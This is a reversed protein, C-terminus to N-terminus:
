LTEWGGHKQQYEIDTAGANPTGFDDLPRFEADDGDEPTVVMVGEYYVEGDDDKMRYKRGQPHHIIEEATLKAHSPGIMGVANANSPQPANPDAIFDKTIIWPM